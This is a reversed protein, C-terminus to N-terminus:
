WSEGVYCLEHFSILRRILGTNRDLIGKCAQRLQCMEDPLLQKSRTGYANSVFDSGCISQAIEERIGVVMSWVYEPPIYRDGQLM